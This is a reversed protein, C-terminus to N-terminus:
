GEFRNEINNRLVKKARTLLGEISKTSRNMIRSIESVPLEEVYKLVLTQRYDPPLDALAQEMILRDETSEIFNEGSVGDGLSELLKPARDDLYSNKNERKMKRYHDAIKHRAINVLWTYIQCNGNFNKASRFAGIFTEQVIDEAASQNYGVEFFVFSFLRNFHTIFIERLIQSDGNRLGSIVVSEPHTEPFSRIEEEIRTVRIQRDTTDKQYDLNTKM